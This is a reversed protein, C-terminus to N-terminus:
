TAKDIFEIELAVLLGNSNDSDVVENAGVNFDKDIFIEGHHADLDSATDNVFRGSSAQNDDLRLDSINPMEDDASGPKFPSTDSDADSNLQRHVEAEVVINNDYYSIESASTFGEYHRIPTFLTDATLSTPTVDVDLDEWRNGNADTADSFLAFAHIFASGLVAHHM